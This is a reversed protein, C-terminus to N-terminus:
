PNVVFWVGGVNQGTTDGPKTDKIWYYLPMDNYTVQMTGDSSTITAIKGKIGTSATLSAGTSVTYAPWNVLCQGSCNSVGPTDKTYKYLTMGNGAVLFMKLEPASATNLTIGSVPPPVPPMATVSPTNRQGTMAPATVPAMAEQSKQFFAMYGIGLIVVLVIIIVLNKMRM